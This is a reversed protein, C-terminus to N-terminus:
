TTGKMCLRSASKLLRVEVRLLRSKVKLINVHSEMGFFSRMELYCLAREEERFAYTYICAPTKSHNSM